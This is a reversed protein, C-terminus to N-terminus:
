YMSCSAWRGRDLWPEGAHVRTIAKLIVEAREAKSLIRAGALMARQHMEVDRSGTFILVQSDASVQSILDLGSEEGLDLDLLM